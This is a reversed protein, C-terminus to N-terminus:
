RLVEKLRDYIVQVDKLSINKKRAILNIIGNKFLFNKDNKILNFLNHKYDRLLTERKGSFSHKRCSKFYLATEDLNWVRKPEELLYKEDGLLELIEHFRRRIKEPTINARTKNFYEPQKLSLEPHRRMFLKFWKDGPVNNKFQSPINLNSVIQKVFALGNKNIPFGM